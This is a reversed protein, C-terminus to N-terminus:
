FEASGNLHKKFDKEDWEMATRKRRRVGLPIGGCGAHCGVGDIDDVLEAIESPGLAAV